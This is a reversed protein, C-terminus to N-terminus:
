LVPVRLRLSGGVITGSALAEVRTMWTSNIRFAEEPWVVYGGVLRELTPQGEAAVMLHTYFSAM